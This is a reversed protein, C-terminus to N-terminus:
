VWWWSDDGTPDAFPDFADPRDTQVQGQPTSSAARWRNGQNPSTLLDNHGFPPPASKAGAMDVAAFSPPVIRAFATDMPAAGPIGAGPFSVGFGATSAAHAGRPQPAAGPSPPSPPTIQFNDVLMASSFSTDQANCAGVGLTYTGDTTFTFTFTYFGTMRPFGSAGPADILPSTTDALKVLTGGTGVPTISVFCFDRYLMEGALESTLFNWDFTL